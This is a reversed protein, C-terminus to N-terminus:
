KPPQLAGLAAEVTKYENTGKPLLGLLRQWNLIATKADHRQAAALGLYWLAEPQDPDREAVDRMVAVLEDSLPRRLDRSAGSAELLFHGRQL